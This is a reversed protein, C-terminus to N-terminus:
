EAAARALGDVAALGAKEEIAAVEHLLLGPPRDSGEEGAADVFDERAVRGAAWLAKQGIRQAARQLEGVGARGGHLRIAVLRIALAALNGARPVVALLVRPPLVIPGPQVIIAIPIVQRLAPPKDGLIGDADGAAHIQIRIRSAVRYASSIRSAIATPTIIDGPETIANTEKAIAGTLM